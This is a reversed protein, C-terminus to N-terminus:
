NNEYRDWWKLLTVNLQGYYKSLPLIAKVLAGNYTPRGDNDQGVPTPKSCVYKGLPENMERIVQRVVEPLRFPTEVDQMAGFTWGLLEEELLRECNELSRKFKWQDVM